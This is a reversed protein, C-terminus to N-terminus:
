TCLGHGGVQRRTKQLSECGVSKLWEHRKSESLKLLLLDVKYGQIVQGRPESVDSDEDAAATDAVM